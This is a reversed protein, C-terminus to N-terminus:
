VIFLNNHLSFPIDYCCIVEDVLIKAFTESYTVKLPFAETFLDTVVLMYKNGQSTVPLPGM